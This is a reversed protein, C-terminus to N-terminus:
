RVRRPSTLKKELKEKKLAVFKKIEGKVREKTVLNDKAVKIDKAWGDKALRRAVTERVVLPELWGKELSKSMKEFKSMGRYYASEARDSLKALKPGKWAYYMRVQPLMRRWGLISERRRFHKIEDRYHEFKTKSAIIEKIQDDFRKDYKRDIERRLAQDAAYQRFTYSSDSM